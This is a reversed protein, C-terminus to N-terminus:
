YNKTKFINKMEDIQNEYPTFNISVTTGKEVLKNILDATYYLDSVDKSFNVFNDKGFVKYLPSVRNYLSCYNFLGEYDQLLPEM